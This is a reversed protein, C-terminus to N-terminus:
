AEPIEFLRLFAERAKVLFVLTSLRQEFSIRAINEWLRRFDDQFTRAEGAFRINDKRPPPTVKTSM